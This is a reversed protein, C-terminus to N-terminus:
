VDVIAFMHILRRSRRRIIGDLMIHNTRQVLGVLDDGRSEFETYGLIGRVDLLLMRIGLLGGRAIGRWFRSNGRILV